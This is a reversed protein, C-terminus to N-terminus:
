LLLWFSFLVFTGIPLYSLRSSGFFAQRLDPSSRSRQAFLLLPAMCLMSTSRTPFLFCRSCSFSYGPLDISPLRSFLLFLLYSPSRRGFADFFRYPGLTFSISRYPILILPPFLITLHPFIHEFSMQTLSSHLNVPVILLGDPGRIVFDGSPFLVFPALLFYFRYLSGV